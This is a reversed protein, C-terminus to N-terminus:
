QPSHKAAGSIIYFHKPAAQHRGPDSPSDAGDRAARSQFRRYRGVPYPAIAFAARVSPHAMAVPLLIGAGFSYGCLGAPLPGPGICGSIEAPLGPLARLREPEALLDLCFLGREALIDQLPDHSL